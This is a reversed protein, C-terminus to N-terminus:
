RKDSFTRSPLWSESRQLSRPRIKPAVWATWTAMRGKHDGIARVFRNANDYPLLIYPTGAALIVPKNMQPNFAKFEEEDM